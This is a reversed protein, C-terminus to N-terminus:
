GTTNVEDNAMAKKAFFSAEELKTKVISFERTKTPCLAELQGLCQDFAEAIQAAKQKGTENLMHVTFEPRMPTRGQGPMRVLKVPAPDIGWAGL